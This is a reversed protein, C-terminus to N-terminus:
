REVVSFPLPFIKEVLPRFESGSYQDAAVEGTICENLEMGNWLYSVDTRSQMQVEPTAAFDAIWLVNDDASGRGTWLSGIASPMRSLGTVLPNVQYVWGYVPGTCDATSFYVRSTEAPEGSYAWQDYAYNFEGLMFALNYIAGDVPILAMTSTYNGEISEVVTGIEEGDDDLLVKRPPSVGDAGPLGDQGADGQPGQDGTDGKPGAPGQDGTDGKPGQLGIEAPDVVVESKRCINRLKVTTGERYSDTRKDKKACLVWADANTTFLFISLTALILIRM